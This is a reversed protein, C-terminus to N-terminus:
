EYLGAKLDGLGRGWGAYGMGEGGSYSATNKRTPGQRLRGCWTKLGRGELGPGVGGGAGGMEEAPGAGTGWREGGPGAGM